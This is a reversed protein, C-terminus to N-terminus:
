AALDKSCQILSKTERETPVGHAKWRVLGDNDVLFSHGLLVNEIPLSEKLRETNEGTCMFRDQREQPRISKRLNREIWFQIWRYLRSELLVIEFVQVGQRPESELANRYRDCMTQGIGRLSVLVVTTKGIMDNPFQITRGSLTSGTLSPFKDSTQKPLLSSGAEFKKGGTKRFDELDAFYGKKLEKKLQARRERREEASARSWFCASQLVPTWCSRVERVFLRPGGLPMM